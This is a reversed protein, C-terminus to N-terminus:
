AFAASLVEWETISLSPEVIDEVIEGTGEMCGFSARKGNASLSAMLTNILHQREAESLSLAERELEHFKM